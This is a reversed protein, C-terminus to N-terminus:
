LNEAYFEDYPTEVITPKSSDPDFIVKTIIPQGYSSHCDEQFGGLHYVIKGAYEIELSATITAGCRGMVNMNGPTPRITVKFAGDKLGCTREISKLSGINEDDKMEILSWPDWQDDTKNQVLSDGAENYAGLYTLIIKNAAVDCEYGVL